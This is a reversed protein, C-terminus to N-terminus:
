LLMKKNTQRVDKPVKISNLITPENLQTYLRILGYNHAVSSTIQTEDIPIYMLKYAM